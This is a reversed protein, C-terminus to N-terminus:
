FHGGGGGHSSGSHSTHVTSGSFGGGGGTKNRPPDKPKPVATVNHYLFVESNNSFSISDTVAYDAAGSKHSVSTLKNKMSTVSIFGVVLGIIISVIANKPADEKFKEAKTLTNRYNYEGYNGYNYEGYNEDGYTYEDNVGNRYDIVCQAAEEAFASFANYYDADALYSVLMDGLQEIDYDSIADIGSGSTSIHYARDSMNVALIVGDRNEGFGYGNADFYDDAFEEIDDDSYVADYFSYGSLNDATVVVIDFELQGSLSDLRELLHEEEPDTLLDADDTLRPNAASVSFSLSIVLSAIVFVVSLLKLHKKM